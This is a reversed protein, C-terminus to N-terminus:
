DPAASPTRVAAPWPAYGTPWSRLAAGRGAEGARAAEVEANLALLTTQFAFGDILTIIRSVEDSAAAVGEMTRPREASATQGAQGTTRGLTVRDGLRQRLESAVDVATDTEVIATRVHHVAEAQQTTEAALSSAAAELATSRIPLSHSQDLAAAMTAQPQNAFANFANSLAAVESPGDARLRGSVDGNRDAFGRLRSTVQDLPRVLTRRM